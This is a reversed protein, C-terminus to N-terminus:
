KRYYINQILLYFRDIIVSFFLTVVIFWPLILISYKPFMIMKQFPYFYYCFFSHILWMNTSNKGLYCFTNRLKNTRHILDMFFAIMIPVYFIDLTDGLISNRIIVIFLLVIIDTIPTLLGLNRLQMIFKEMRLDKGFLMGMYFCAAFPSAQCFLNNYFFSGSLDSFDGLKPIVPFIYKMLIDLNIILFASLYFDKKEVVNLFIPFTCLVIIYSWLFWWESNYSSSVGLLNSIFEILTFEAFRNSIGSEVTYNIQNSFFLFAIPIIIIFVKWYKYYLNLLKKILHFEGGMKYSRYTGLGGLFM